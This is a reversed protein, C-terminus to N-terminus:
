LYGKIENLLEENRKITYDIFIDNDVINALIEVTDVVRKVLKDCSHDESWDEVVKLGTEYIVKDKTKGNKYVKTEIKADLIAPYVYVKDGEQISKNKIAEYVDRENKRAEKDSACNLIAKTVTKKQAWRKIDKPKLAEKIYNSYIGVLDKGENHIIDKLMSGLMESLAKEKKQDKISSGKLKMKEGDFLVYNKAKLVLVCKYYGDDEFRITTPYLSNLEGLLVLRTEEDLFKKATFSISDTDCNVIDFGKQEAWKVAKTIIERGYKTVEAAGKPYNYNLGKAGMFGYASNIVVKQAQELDKYYRDGTEKAKKKNSLREKTFYELTSLFFNNFDKSKPSIKYNLMISPYLSAVDVKFVERYIGPNGFSIAGEFEDPKDARAVSFDDQLYARVMFANLQSGSASETMIQFPKPIHPTLYFKASIMLDFLKIPDDADEEAYRIIKEREEPINWNDKIKSADYHQRGEKELGEQQVISKLRYSEYKRGIDYDLAVFFMDIVERGFINVRRYSYSQSGDKRKERTDEEIEVDSYDRGLMLKESVKEMMGQLYPIDFSVINYGTIVSPNIEIVWNCWDRIMDFHTEYNERNFTKYQIETKGTKLKKRFANTILYVTADQKHPTLGNTEIDFSLLSVDDTKMNKFYTYGNRVMFAEVKHKITFLNLKYLDPEIRKYDSYKPYEKIFKYYQEGQLRKCGNAYVPSLVWQKYPMEHSTIEGNSECFITATEDKISINVIKETSDKGFILRNQVSM